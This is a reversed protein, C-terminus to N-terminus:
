DTPYAIRLSNHHGQGSVGRIIRVVLTASGESTEYTVGGYRRERDGIRSVCV